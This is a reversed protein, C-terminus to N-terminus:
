DRLPPYAAVIASRGRLFDAAGIKRGGPRQVVQLRLGGSGCAVVLEAGEAVVVEGPSGRAQPLAEAEWVKIEESGLRAFAGPAPNFARVRRDLQLCDESWDLGAESRAIKSAYTALAPDQPLRPLTDIGELADVIAESGLRALRETLLGTTDRAEIPIRRLLLMPGTDLGADMQMITIGTESDGALLARHVPAAGRWRPLLSAHINLCGRPPLELVARPLLLGYAAVVLIEPRSERLRQIDASGALSAPKDIPLGLRIATLAVASANLRLGRGAPRDPQTLVLCVEHGAEVLAELARAAFAPTGAFAVRM